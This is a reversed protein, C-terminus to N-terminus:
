VGGVMERGWGLVKEGKGKELRFLSWLGIAHVVGEFSSTIIIWDHNTIEFEGGEGKGRPREWGSEMVGKRRIGGIFLQMEVVWGGVNNKRPLLTTSMM